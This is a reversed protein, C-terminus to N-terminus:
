RQIIEEVLLYTESNDETQTAQYRTLGTGQRKANQHTGGVAIWEGLQGSLTTRAQQIKLSGDAKAPQNMHPSIQLTVRNENLRPIVYFGTTADQFHITQQQHIAGSSIYTNREQIPIARGTTIFASKGELTQIHQIVDHDHRTRHTRAHLRMSNDKTNDGAEVTVHEGINANIGASLRRREDDTLRGQRVHIILRRPPRDFKDLISYIDDLREPSTRVILQNGMGTITDKPDMFPKILPIVEGATRGKLKIVTLENEANATSFILVFLLPFLHKINM